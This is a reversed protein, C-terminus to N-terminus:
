AKTTEKAIVIEELRRLREEITDTRPADTRGTLYDMSTGLENAIRVLTHIPIDSKRNEYGKYTLFAAGVMDSFKEQSIGAETRLQKVRNAIVARQTLRAATNDQSILVGKNWSDRLIALAESATMKTTQQEEM